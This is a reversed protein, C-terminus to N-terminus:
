VAGIAILFNRIITNAANRQALEFAASAGSIFAPGAHAVSIQRPSYLAPSGGQNIAGIYMEFNSRASSALTQVALDADDKHAVQASDAGRVGLSYGAASSVAPNPTAGYDNVNIRPSMVPGNLGPFICTQNVLSADRAGFDCYSGIEATRPFVGVHFNAGAFETTPDLAPVYGTRLYSTSGDGKYGRDATFAPSAVPTLTFDSGKLNLRAAQADHAAMLYLVTTLPWLGAAKWDKIFTNILGQRTADPTVSMRNLYAITEPEFAVGGGTTPIVRQGNYLKRGDAILVAGRVPQENYIVQDAQLPEVQLTRQNDSFLVGGAVDSIGIVPLGNHMLTGDAVIRVGLVRQENFITAM